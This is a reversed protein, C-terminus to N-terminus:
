PSGLKASGVVYLSILCTEASQTCSANGWIGRLGGLGMKRRSSPAQPASDDYSLILCSSFEKYRRTTFVRLYFAELRRVTNKKGEGGEIKWRLSFKRDM